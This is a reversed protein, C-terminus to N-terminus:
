LMSMGKNRYMDRDMNKDMDMNKDRDMDRDVDMDRGRDRGSYIGIDMDKEIDMITDM